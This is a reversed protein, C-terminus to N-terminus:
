NFYTAWLHTKLKRRFGYLDDMLKLEAPLQNWLSPAAIHFSSAGIKRRSIQQQLDNEQPQRLRTDRKYKHVLEKLYCPAQDNICKFVLVCVKFVIRLKVPLWSLERLLPTASVRGSPLPLLILRAARNQIRQMKGILSVPANVMLSNCYHLRSIILAHVARKCADATIYQRIRILQRLHYNCSKVVASVHPSRNLNSDLYAGLNKVTQSPSIECDAIQLSYDPCNKNTSCKFIIFETKTTM